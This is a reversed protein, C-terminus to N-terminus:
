RAIPGIDAPHGLQGLERLAALVSEPVEGQSQYGLKPYEIMRAVEGCLRGILISRGGEATAYEEFPIPPSTVRAEAGPWWKEFTAKVRREMFPVHVLIWRRAGAGREEILRRTFMVNEGTNTSRDELLIRERPVGLRIAEAALEEAETKEWDQTYRGRGGTMVLLPARGELFLRGGWAGPRMDMSGFVLIADAREIEEGVRLWDWLVRALRLVRPAREQDLM